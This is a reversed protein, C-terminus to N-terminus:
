KFYNSNWIIWGTIVLWLFISLTISIILNVFEEQELFQSDSRFILELDEKKENKIKYCWVPLDKLNLATIIKVNVNELNWIKECDKKFNKYESNIEQFLFMFTLLTVFFYVFLFYIIKKLKLLNNKM